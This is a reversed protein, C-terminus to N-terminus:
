SAVGRPRSAKAKLTLAVETVASLVFLLAGSALMAWGVPLLVWFAVFVLILGAVEGLISVIMPGTM